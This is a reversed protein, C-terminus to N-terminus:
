ENCRVLLAKSDDYNISATQQALDHQTDAITIIEETEENVLVLGEGSHKSQIRDTLSERERQKTIRDVVSEPVHEEQFLSESEFDGTSEVITGKSGSLDTESPERIQGDSVKPNRLKSTM